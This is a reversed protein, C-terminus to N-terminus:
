TMAQDKYSTHCTLSTFNLSSKTDFSSKTTLVGFIRIIVEPSVLSTSPKRARASYEFTLGVNQGRVIM